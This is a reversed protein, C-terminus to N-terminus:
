IALLYKNIYRKAYEKFAFARTVSYLINDKKYTIIWSCQRIGVDIIKINKIM